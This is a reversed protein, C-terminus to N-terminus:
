FSTVTHFYPHFNAKPEANLVSYRHIEHIHIDKYAEASLRDLQLTVVTYRSTSYITVSMEASQQIFPPFDFMIQHM